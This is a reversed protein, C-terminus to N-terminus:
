TITTLKISFLRECTERFSIRYPLTINEPSYSFANLSNTVIIFIRRQHSIRLRFQQTNDRSSTNGQSFSHKIM